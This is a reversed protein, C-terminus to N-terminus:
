GQSRQRLEAPNLCPSEVQPSTAHSRLAAVLACPWALVLPTAEPMHITHTWEILVCLTSVGAGVLMSRKAARDQIPHGLLTLALLPVVAALYVINLTVMVNVISRGYVAVLTAALVPLIRHFVAPISTDRSVTATADTMARLISCASGLATVILLCTVPLSMVPASSDIARALLKPVVQAQDALHGLQWLNAGAIVASAPLFGVGLVIVAATLCGYRAHTPTKAMAPFQQYDAGCVVLAAVSLLVLGTHGVPQARISEMFIAPSRLWLILSHTEALAYVLIANCGCMCLAFMGSLWSIRLFSFVLVLCDVSIISVAQPMGSLALIASAGRIQASLVGTMWILSFAAVQQSITPGYLSGFYTWISQGTKQLRPASLALAVLGIATAVAYLCAAMGQQLALEGTGLFFGIGCSTSVLLSAVDRVVLTREAM